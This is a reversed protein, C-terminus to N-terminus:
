WIGIRVSVRVISLGMFNECVPPRACMEFRSWLGFVAPLMNASFMQRAPRGFVSRNAARTEEVRAEARLHLDYSPHERARDFHPLHYLADPRVERGRRPAGGGALLRWFYPLPQIFLFGVRQESKVFMAWVGFSCGVVM